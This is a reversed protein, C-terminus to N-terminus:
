RWDRERGLQSIGICYKNGIGRCNEKSLSEESLDLKVENQIYRHVQSSGKEARRRRPWNPELSVVRRCALGSSQRVALCKIARGRISKVQQKPPNLPQRALLKNFTPDLRWWRMLRPVFPIQCGAIASAVLSVEGAHALSLNDLTMSMKRIAKQLVKQKEKDLV